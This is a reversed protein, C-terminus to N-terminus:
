PKKPFREKLGEYLESLLATPIGKLQACRLPQGFIPEVEVARGAQADLHMSTFYPTMKDTYEMMLDVFTDEISLGYAGAVAQLEKMLGFARKRLTPDAVIKDVTQDALTSLGNFPVNWILKKWRSLALSEVVKCEIGSRNFMVGLRHLRADPGRQFNGIHLHGYDLHDITGDELRNACLFALGGAVRKAGFLQALCDENGLGNQATLVLSEEGMLPTVLREYAENDTAKIAVFAVDVVGIKDPDRYCQVSALHFDGKVSRVFLGNAKVREYDRRMLFHVDCGKRALMAGYYGGLAGSGVIAIRMSEM